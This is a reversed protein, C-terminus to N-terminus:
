YWIHSVCTVSIRRRETHPPWDCQKTARVLAPAGIALDRIGINKFFYGGGFWLPQCLGNGNVASSCNKEFGNGNDNFYPTLNQKDKLSQANLDPAAV